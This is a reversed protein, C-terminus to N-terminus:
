REHTDHNKCSLINQSYKHVPFITEEKTINEIIESSKPKPNHLLRSLPESLWTQTVACFCHQKMIINLM